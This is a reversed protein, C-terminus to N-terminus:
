GKYNWVPKWHDLIEATPEIYGKIEEGDKYAMPSEDLTHQSVCTTYIGEMTKRFEEMSLETKAQSRSMLRGAGHPASYNWEPNGRGRCLLVGDRMNLPIVMLEDEQASIAGKRIIKHEIDIYNHVSEVAEQMGGLALDAIIMRNLKAYDQAISMFELYRELDEEELWELGKQRKPIRKIQAELAKGSYKNRIDAIEKSYDYEEAIKQFHQAIKLGFNRSGSHIVFWHEGNRDVDIEMFHNGGGLTGLSNRAYEYDQGTEQCVRKLDATFEASLSGAPASHINRGVPVMQAIHQNFQDLDVAQSLKAASVGCGIDVGILNPVVKDTLKATYGIVCGAGAHVDPMIRVHADKAMPQNLLNAIQSYAAEEILDNYVVAKGYKGYIESM